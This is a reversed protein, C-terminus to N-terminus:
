VLKKQKFLNFFSNIIFIYLNEQQCEYYIRRYHDTYKPLNIFYPNKIHKM